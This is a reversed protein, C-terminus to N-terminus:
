VQPGNVATQIIMTVMEQLLMGEAVAGLKNRLSSKISAVTIALQRNEITGGTAEKAEETLAAETSFMGIVLAGGNEVIFIPSGSNGGKATYSGLFCQFDDTTITQTAFGHSTGPEIIVDLGKSFYGLMVLDMGSADALDSFQLAEGPISDGSIMIAAIDAGEDYHVIRGPVSRVSPVHVTVEGTTQSNTRVVHAATMVLNQGLASGMLFGTGRGEVSVVSERHLFAAENFVSPLPLPDM